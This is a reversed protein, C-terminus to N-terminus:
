KIQQKGHPSKNSHIKDNHVNQNLNGTRRKRAYTHVPVILRPRPITFDKTNKKMSIEACNSGISSLSSTSCARRLSAPERKTQDNTTNQTNTRKKMISLLRPLPRMEQLNGSLNNMSTPRMRNNNNISNNYEITPRMECTDNTNINFPTPNIRVSKARVVPKTIGNIQKLHNENSVDKPEYNRNLLNGNSNTFNNQNQYRKETSYQENIDDFDCLKKERLANFINKKLSRNFNKNITAPKFASKDDIKSENNGNFKNETNTNHITQSRKIKPIRNNNSDNLNGSIFDNKIPNNNTNSINHLDNQNNNSLEDLDNWENYQQRDKHRLTSPNYGNSIFQNSNLPSRQQALDLQRMQELTIQYKGLSSISNRDRSKSSATESCIDSNLSSGSSRNGNFPSLKSSRGITKITKDANLWNNKYINEMPSKQDLALNADIVRGPFNRM